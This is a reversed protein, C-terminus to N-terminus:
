ASHPLPCSAQGATFGDGFGDQYGLKRGTKFAVCLSRPCDRDACAQYDHKEAQRKKRARAKREREHRSRRSKFDSKPKCVHTLPNGGYPRGCRSCKGFSIAPKATAQRRSNSFCVHTLGRPKGCRDCVVHLAPKWAM